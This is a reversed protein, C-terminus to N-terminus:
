IKYVERHVKEVGCVRNDHLKFIVGVEGYPTAQLRVKMNEIIEEVESGASPILNDIVDEDDGSLEIPPGNYENMNGGYLGQAAVHEAHNWELAQYGHRVIM